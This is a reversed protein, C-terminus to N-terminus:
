HLTVEELRYGLAAAADGIVRLRREEPLANLAAQAIAEQPSADLGQAIAEFDIPSRSRTRGGALIRSIRPPAEPPKQPRPPKVAPQRRGKTDARTTVHPIEERAELNSRVAAVTKNDVHAIKATARDSREPKAQLLAAILDRKQETTLHRRHINASVVYAYPDDSYLTRAGRFADDWCQKRREQDAIRAIAALRNRGDVLGEGLYAFVIQQRLGHEAIDAALEDLEAESMMPFLDAAPHVKIRDRWSMAQGEAQATARILINIWIVSPLVNKSISGFHPDAFNSVLDRREAAHALVIKPDAGILEIALRLKALGQGAPSM